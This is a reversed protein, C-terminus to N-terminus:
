FKPNTKEFEAKVKQMIPLVNPDASLTAMFLKVRAFRRLELDDEPSRQYVIKEVEKIVEKIQPAVPAAAVPRNKLMEDVQSKRILGADALVIELLEFYEALAEDRTGAEVEFGFENNSYQVGDIPLNIRRKLTVGRVGTLEFEPRPTPKSRSRKPKDEPVPSEATPAPAQPIADLPDEITAVVTVPTTTGGAVEVKIGANALETPTPAPFNEADVEKYEEKIEQARTTPAPAEGTPKVRIRRQNEIVCTLTKINAEPLNYDKMRTAYTDFEEATNLEYIEKLCDQHRQLNTKPTSDPNNSNYAPYQM